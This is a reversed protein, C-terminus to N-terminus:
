NSSSFILRELNIFPKEILLHIVFAAAFTTAINGAYFVIFETVSYHLFTTMSYIRFMIVLPHVLYSSYTLKSFFKFVELELFWKVIGGYGFFTGLMFIALGVVFSTHGFGSFMAMQSNNWPNQYFTYPCYVLYFTAFFAICYLIYRPIRLYYIYRVRKSLRPATYIFSVLVGILYPGIRNWPKQYIDTVFQSANLSATSPAAFIDFFPALQYKYAVITTGIVSAFILSLTLLWGGLKWKRFLILIIPTLLFFQMDNALYWSVAYCETTLTSYLNNFYLFNTWWSSSCGLNTFESYQYFIPGSGIMPAVWMSFFIMFYYLPSLRVFRHVVYALWFKISGYISNRKTLQNLVSFSVLFGSLMFFTDVAFEGGFISQAAFTKLTSGTAIYALNDYGYGSAGFLLSHGLIVWCTSLTRIGDLSNFYRKDSKGYALSNFNKILSWCTFYKIFINTEVNVNSLKEFFPDYFQPEFDNNIGSNGSANEISGGAGGGGTENHDQITSYNYQSDGQLNTSNPEFYSKPNLLSYPHNMLTGYRKRYHSLQNVFIYEIATGILINLAIFACIATMAWTGSTAPIEVTQYTNNYCHLDETANFTMNFQLIMLISYQTMLGIVDDPSCYMASPYCVGIYIPLIQEIESGFLCYQSTNSPYSICSDFNGLENIGVGSYFLMMFDPNTPNLLNEMADSCNKSVPYSSQLNEGLDDYLDKTQFPNQKLRLYETNLLNNRQYIDQVENESPLKLNNRNYSQPPLKSEVKFNLLFISAIILIIITDVKM